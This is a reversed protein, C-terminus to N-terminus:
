CSRRFQQATSRSSRCTHGTQSDHTTKAIVEKGVGTEGTILVSIRARAVKKVTELMSLMAKSASM